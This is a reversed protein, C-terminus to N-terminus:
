QQMAYLLVNIGIRAADERVYGECEMSAHNELACSIDYPSFIVVYRGDIEIGELVPAVQRVRNEVPADPNARVGTQRLDVTTLDFGRYETTFIPHEPPIRQFKSDPLAAQLERRFAEQFPKSACIADAFLVGGNHIFQSIAKREADNWRFDERGHMFAVPYDPLNEDTPALLDAPPFVRAHLQQGFVAMLNRLATPADDSGGVHDLKAIALAGRQLELAAANDSALEPRDLKFRLERNTAYALVNAGMALCANMERTIPPPLVETNERALEWFCGLDKPCYVVATRCCADIGMLPRLFEPDVPQEAFWIPHSPPLLRLPTEPFLEAMLERFQADFGQGQCCNEAFIFGGKLVYERLREKHEALLKLDDRGTIFLVPSELLDDVSAVNMDIVQWNLDRKWRLEVYRTLNAIDSRHHNWDNGDSHKIKSVVVPRRGKSLFLLGFATAIEPKDEGVGTGRWAGSLTDQRDCLVEAGERYWDHQGIFRRGTLRGVREVSYLYYMHNQMTQNSGTPHSKVSFRSGLWILGNTIADNETAAACCTVKGNLLWADGRGLHRDIITLSCIGACTMSGREERSSRYAWGGTNAQRNVWYKLADVWTRQGVRIGLREAEHLAMIAFQSNSEDSSARKMDYDWGGASRADAGAGDIQAKELWVVNRRILAQDREPEALCFVMTQLATSYTANPNGLERLRVLAKAVAPDEHTLGCNLLALTCLATVGGPQNAVEDWVGDPSQKSKLFAVGTRIAENVREATVPAAPATRLSLCLM